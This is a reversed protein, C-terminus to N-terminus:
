CINCLCNYLFSTKRGLSPYFSRTLTTGGVYDLQNLEWWGKPEEDEQEQAQQPGWGAPIQESVKWKWEIMSILDLRSLSTVTCDGNSIMYRHYNLGASYNFLIGMNNLVDLTLTSVKEVKTGLYSDLNMDEKIHEYVLTAIAGCTLPTDHYNHAVSYSLTRALM